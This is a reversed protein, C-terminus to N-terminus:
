DFRGKVKHEDSLIIKKYMMRVENDKNGTRKLIQRLLLVIALVAIGLILGEMMEM